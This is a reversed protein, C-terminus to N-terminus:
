LQSQIKIQVLILSKISFLMREERIKTNCSFPLNHLNSKNPKLSSPICYALIVSGSEKHKLNVKCRSHLAYM